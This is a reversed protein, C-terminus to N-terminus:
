TNLPLVSLIAALSEWSLLALLDLVSSFCHLEPSAEGEGRDAYDRERCLGGLAGHRPCRSLAIRGMGFLASGADPDRQKGLGLDM